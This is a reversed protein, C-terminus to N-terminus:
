FYETKTRCTACHLDAAAISTSSAGATRGVHRPLFLPRPPPADAGSYGSVALRLLRRDCQQVCLLAKVDLLAIISALLDVPLLALPYHDQKTAKPQSHRASGLERGVLFQPTHLM